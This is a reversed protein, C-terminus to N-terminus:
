YRVRPDILGVIVDAFLNSVVVVIAAFLVIAQVVPLDATSVASVALEGIGPWAFVTETVVTGGLLAGFQMGLALIVPTAANRASHKWIVSKYPLGKASATRIYDQGIVELMASRTLRMTLPVVSFALTVGPLILHRFSGRGSVPLWGLNVSFFVILMLGFWFIPMAQGAVAIISAVLDTVSGRKIAALVGLPVSVIVTLLIAFSALQVTAAIRPRLIRSVPQASFLSKGFDGRVALTAWNWYQVPLPKDLGYRQRLLEVEAASADPASLSRAPDKAVFLLLFTTVSILVAIILAQILRQLIYGTM